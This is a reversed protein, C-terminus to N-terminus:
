TPHSRIINVAQKSIESIYKIEAPGVEKYPAYKPPPIPGGIYLL